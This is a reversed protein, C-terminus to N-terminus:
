SFARKLKKIALNHVNNFIAYAITLFTTFFLNQEYTSGFVDGLVWSCVFVAIIMHILKLKMM